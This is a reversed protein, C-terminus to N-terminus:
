STPALMSDHRRARWYRGVFAAYNGAGNTAIADEPLHDRLWAVVAEMKVAGPTEKPRQWTEYEARGARTWDAWGGVAPLNRAALRALVAPAAAAVALDARYVQGPIDPDPHVHLVTKGPAQPDILEYGGTAIDGLRAGLV